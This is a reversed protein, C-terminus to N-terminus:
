SGISGIIGIILLENKYSIIIVPSFIGGHLAFKGCGLVQSMSDVGVISGTLDSELCTFHIYALLEIGVNM